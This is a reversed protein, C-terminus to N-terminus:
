SSQALKKMFAILMKQEEDIENLLLVSREKSAMNLELVLLLQSELEFCSGLAMEIFRYYDKQSRRSSGEAINSSISISARNLQSKLGFKEEVPFEKTLEYTDKAIKFGTQWILLKKFDKM